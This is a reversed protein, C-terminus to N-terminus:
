FFHLIAATRYTPTDPLQSAHVTLPSFRVLHYPEPVFRNEPKAQEKFIESLRWYFDERPAFTYRPLTFAQQYFITTLADSIIFSDELVDDNDPYREIISDIHPDIVGFNRGPALVGQYLQVACRPQDTTDATHIAEAWRIAAHFNAPLSDLPLHSEVPELITQINLTAKDSTRASFGEPDSIRGYDTIVPPSAMFDPVNYRVSPM